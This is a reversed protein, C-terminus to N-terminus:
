NNKVTNKRPHKRIHHVSSIYIEKKRKNIKYVILYPFIDVKAERFKKNDRSGYVEPQMAIEEIKGRVAQIFREGLGKQKDEYWRYADHYDQKVLPHLLYTYSM